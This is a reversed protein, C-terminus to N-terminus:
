KSTHSFFNGVLYFSSSFKGQGLLVPPFPIAVNIAGNKLRKLNAKRMFRGQRIFNRQKHALQVHAKLPIHAVGRSKPLKMKTTM